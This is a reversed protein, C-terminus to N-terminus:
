YGIIWHLGYVGMTLNARMPAMLTVTEIKRLTKKSRCSEVM